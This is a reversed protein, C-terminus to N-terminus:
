MALCRQLFLTLCSFAHSPQSCAVACRVDRGCRDVVWDHRDFPLKYGLLNLLRAKPSYENPRGMFRKLRPAGCQRAHLSEWRQVQEAAVRATLAVWACFLCAAKHSARARRDACAAPQPRLCGLYCTQLATVQNVCWM